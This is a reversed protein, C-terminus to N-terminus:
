RRPCKPTASNSRICISCSTASRASSGRLVQGQLYVFRAGSVKAAREFDMMGLAEGLEFHEERPANMGPAIGWGACECM